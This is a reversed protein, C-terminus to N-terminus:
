DRRAAFAGEYPTMFSRQADVGRDSSSKFLVTPSDVVLGDGMAYLRTNATGLDIAVDPDAILGRLKSIVRSANM